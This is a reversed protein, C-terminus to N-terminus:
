EGDIAWSGAVLHGWSRISWSLPTLDEEVLAAVDKLLTLQRREGGLGTVYSVRYVTPYKKASELENRTLVFAAPGGAAGKVEVLLDGDTRAVELDWGRNLRQVDTISTTAPDQEFFAITAEIARREVDERDVLSM